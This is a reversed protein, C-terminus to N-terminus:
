SHLDDEINDNTEVVLDADIFENYEGGSDTFDLFSEKVNSVSVVKFRYRLWSVTQGIKPVGENKYRNYKVNYTM